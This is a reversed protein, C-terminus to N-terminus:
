LQLKSKYKGLLLQMQGIEETPKMESLKGLATEIVQIKRAIKKSQAIEGTDDKQVDDLGKEVSSLTNSYIKTVENDQKQTELEIEKNFQEVKSNYNAIKKQLQQIIDHNSENAELSSLEDKAQALMASNYMKNAKQKALATNTKSIVNKARKAFDLAQEVAYKVDPTDNSEIIDAAAKQYGEPLQALAAAANTDIVDNFLMEKLPAILETTISILKEAQRKGINFAHSVYESFKAADKEDSTNEFKKAKETFGEIIHIKEEISYERTESNAFFLLKLVELDSLGKKITARIKDEGLYKMAKYRREGSILLYKNPATELVVINHLLGNEKINQALEAINEESDVDAFINDENLTIANLPIIETPESGKNEEIILDNAKNLRNVVNDKNIKKAM